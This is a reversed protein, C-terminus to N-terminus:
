PFNVTISVPTTSIVPTGHPFYINVFVSKGDGKIHVINTSAPDITSPLIQIGVWIALYGTYSVM